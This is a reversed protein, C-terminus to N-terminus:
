LIETTTDYHLSDHALLILVEYLAYSPLIMVYSLLKIFIM